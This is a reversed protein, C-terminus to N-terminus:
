ETPAATQAVARSNDAPHACARHRASGTPLASTRNRWSASPVRESSRRRRLLTAGLFLGAGAIAAAGGTTGLSSAHHPFVVSGIGLVLAGTSASWAASGTGGRVAALLAVLTVAIAAACAGAYGSSQVLPNSASTTRMLSAQHLAFVLLPVAGSLALGLMTPDLTRRVRLVEARAPHLAVLCLLLVGAVITPPDISLTLLMTLVLAAIAVLAQQLAAAHRAPRRLQPAIGALLIVGEIVGWALDQFRHIGGDKPDFWGSILLRAGTILLVLSLVVAIAKVAARRAGRSTPRGAATATTDTQM